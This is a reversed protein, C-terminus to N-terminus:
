RSRAHTQPALRTRRPSVAPRVPRRRHPRAWAASVRRRRPLADPGRHAALGGFALSPPRAPTTPRQDRAGYIALAWPPCSGASVGACGACAGEDSDGPDVLRPAGPGTERRSGAAPTWRGPTSGAAAKAPGPARRDAHPCRISLPRSDRTDHVGIRVLIVAANRM